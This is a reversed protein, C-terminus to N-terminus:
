TPKALKGANKLLEAAWEADEQPLPPDLPENYNIKWYRGREYIQDILMQLSLAVEREGWRLPIPLTPLPERLSAGFVATREPSKVCMMYTRRKEPPILEFDFALVYRGCRLLDIEVLNIESRSYKNQKEWYQRRGIRTRKNTPSLVEIVTVIQEGDRLDLIEVQRAVQPPEELVLLPEAMAVATAAGPAFPTSSDEIVAVDPAVARLSIQDDVVVSEEVRAVLDAPLQGQIQDCILTMMRTHVDRWFTELYPDMGPFPSKM